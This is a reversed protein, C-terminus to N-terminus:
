SRMSRNTPIRPPLTYPLMASANLTGERSSGPSAVTAISDSILKGRPDALSSLNSTTSTRPIDLHKLGKQARM